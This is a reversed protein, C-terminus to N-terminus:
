CRFDNFIIFICINYKLKLNSVQSIALGEVRVYYNVLDQATSHMDSALEAESSLQSLNKHKNEFYKNIEYTEDVLQM